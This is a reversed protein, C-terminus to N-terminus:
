RKKTRFHFAQQIWCDCIKAVTDKSGTISDQKKKVNQWPIQDAKTKQVQLDQSSKTSLYLYLFLLVALLVFGIVTNRDM